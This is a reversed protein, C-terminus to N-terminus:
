AIKSLGFIGRCTELEDLAVDEEVDREVGAEDDHECPSVGSLTAM